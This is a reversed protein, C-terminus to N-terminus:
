CEEIEIIRCLGFELKLFMKLNPCPEAIFGSQSLISFKNPINWKNSDKNSNNLANIVSEVSVNRNNSQEGNPSDFDLIIGIADLEKTGFDILLKFKELITDIGTVSEIDLEKSLSDIKFNLKLPTISKDNENRLGTL